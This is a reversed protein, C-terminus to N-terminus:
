SRSSIANSGFIGAEWRGSIFCNEPIPSFLVESFTFYGECGPFKSYFKKWRKDAKKLNSKPMKFHYLYLKNGIDIESSITSVHAPLQQFHLVLKYFHQILNRRLYLWCSAAM